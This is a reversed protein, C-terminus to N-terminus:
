IGYFVVSKRIEATRKTGDTIRSNAIGSRCKGGTLYDPWRQFNNGAIASIGRLDHERYVRKQPILRERYNIARMRM